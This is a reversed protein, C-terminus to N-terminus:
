HITYKIGYWDLADLVEQKVGQWFHWRVETIVGRRLLDADKIMQEELKGTLKVNIGAKSEHIVTGVLYDGFRLGEDTHLTVQELGANGLYDALRAEGWKGMTRSARPVLATSASMVSLAAGTESAAAGAKTGAFPITTMAGMEGTPGGFFILEAHASYELIKFGTGRTQRGEELLVDLYLPGYRELPPHRKEWLRVMQNYTLTLPEVDVLQGGVMAGATGDKFGYERRHTLLNYNEFCDCESNMAVAMWGDPLDKANGSYWAYIPVNGCFLCVVWIGSAHGTPDVRTWPNNRAYAYRNLGDALVTDPSLWRGTGPNYLRAGYDYFGNAEKEKFNFQLKPTFTGDVGRDQGWPFYSARRIVAGSGDTMVASSGLHDPHYFRLQRNGPQELREAFGGYYKRAVGNEIRMSPLYYTTVGQEVKKWLSEGVFSKETILAGATIKVPMNEVNWDIQTSSGIGTVNGNADYSYVVGGSSLLAHPRGGANYTQTLAGKQRLNGIEDYDYQEIVNGASNKFTTLQDLSDYDLTVSQDPRVGDSTGTVNANSDYAYTYDQITQGGANVSLSRVLLLNGTEDYSFTTVVGNGLSVRTVQGRENRQVDRLVDETVGGMTSRVGVQMAAVDYTYSVQEGDPLTQRLVVMGPGTTSQSNQPYGYTSTFLRAQGDQEYQTAVNRGLADYQYFTRTLGNGVSTLREKQNVTIDVQASATNALLLFIGLVVNKVMGTDRRM